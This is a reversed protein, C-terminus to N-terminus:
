GLEYAVIDVYLIGALLNWSFFVLRRRSECFKSPSTTKGRGIVSTDVRKM